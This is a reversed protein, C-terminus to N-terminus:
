PELTGVYAAIAIMDRPALRDVVATMSAAQGGHRSTSKFGQLQRLVYDPSLGALRPTEPTGRLGEGHCTTCVVTKGGDETALFKGLAVSGPPVYAVFGAYPDRMAVRKADDPVEILRGDIAEGGGPVVQRMRLVPHIATVPVREVEEVRSSRLPKLAAFWASVDLMDRESMAAAMEHMPSPEFRDRTKYEVLQRVLYSAPLGALNASEPHGLGSALHCSACAKIKDGDGQAVLRPMTPHDDPFWDPVAYYDDIEAQTYRRKSGPLQQRVPEINPALVEATQHKAQPPGGCATFLLAAALMLLAPRRAPFIPQWERDPPAGDTSQRLTATSSTRFFGHPLNM